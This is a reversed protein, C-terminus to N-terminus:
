GKSLLMTKEYAVRVAHIAAARLGGEELAQVGEITSGGPSCVSDKLEATHVGQELSMRAAGLIAQAAYERAKQRPVGCAVGGDALAELFIYAFAPGCGSICGGADLLPEEVRDFKGSDGLADIVHSALAESAGLTCWLTMSEGVQAATNPMLRLVPYSGGAMDRIREMSLGAAMSVLLFPDQRAALVPRLPELAEAMM